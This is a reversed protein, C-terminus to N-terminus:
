AVSVGATIGSIVLWLKNVARVHLTSGIAGNFTAVDSSTTTGLFGGPNTVTYAQADKAMIILEQGEQASTPNALTMASAAGSVLSIFVNTKTTPISIAGAATYTMSTWVPSVPLLTGAGAPAAPFDSPPGMFVAAGSAHAACASGQQGGEVALTTSSANDTYQTFFENDIQILNGKAAGTASAVKITLDGAAIAGSLTTANLIAM